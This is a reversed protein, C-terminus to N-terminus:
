VVVEVLMGGGGKKLMSCERADKPRSPQMACLSFRYLTTVAEGRRSM